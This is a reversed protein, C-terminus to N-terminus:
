EERPPEEEGALLEEIRAARELSRDIEFHLEPMRKLTVDDGVRARIFGSARRLAEVTATKEAEEGMVSVFVRAHSLDPSVDVDM